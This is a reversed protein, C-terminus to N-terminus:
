VPKFLYDEKSITVKFNDLLIKYKSKNEEIVKFIMKSFPGSVFEYNKKIDYDFFSQKIYGDQSENLKCKEIFNIIEKQSSILDSLIYKIGKLYKLTEIFNINKFNEHFCLLYDGLLFNEKVIIQNKKRYNIKIKPIYIKTKKGIKNFLDRKLLSLNKKNYKIVIWM